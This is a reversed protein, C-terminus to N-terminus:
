LKECCGFKYILTPNIFSLRELLTDPMKDIMRILAGRHKEIILTERLAQTSLNRYEFGVTNFLQELASMSLPECDYYVGRRAIQLYFTRLPRPLWSLFILKYHPEVIMWRNPVALYGVGKPDMVRRIETLHQCQSGHGGVHEIVHNSLVVDFSDKEFPLLTDEVIKFKFNDKQLRQDVVDVASVECDLIKHNAFYHAIAGSGTGIELLRLAKERGELNLLREIKLAKLRRSKIDLIAHPKREAKAM